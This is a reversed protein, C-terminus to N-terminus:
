CDRAAEIAKTLPFQLSNLLSVVETRVAVLDDESTLFAVNPFEGTFPDIAGPDSSSVKDKLAQLQDYERDIHAVLAQQRSKFSQKVRAASWYSHLIELHENQKHRIFVQWYAPIQASFGSRNRAVSGFGTHAANMMSACVSRCADRTSSLWVLGDPLELQSLDINKNSRARKTGAVPARDDPEDTTLASRVALVDVNLPAYWATADQQEALDPLDDAASGPEYEAAQERTSSGAGAGGVVASSHRNIKRIFQENIRRKKSWSERSEANQLDSPADRYDPLYAQSPIATGYGARADLARRNRGTDEATALLDFSTAVNTIASRVRHQSPDFSTRVGPADLYGLKYARFFAEPDTPVELGQGDGLTGNLEEKERDMSSQAFRRWFQTEDM